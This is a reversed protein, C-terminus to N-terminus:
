DLVEDIFNYTRSVEKKIVNVRQEIDSIDALIEMCLRLKEQLNKREENEM